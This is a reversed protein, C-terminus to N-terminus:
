AVKPTLREIVIEAARQRAQALDYNVQMRLWTDATSGFAKEFRIAMEPTVGSRGAVINHLQQQTIHLAAAAEAVTLGLDDLCEKVLLGPHVPNHM